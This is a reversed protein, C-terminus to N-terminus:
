AQMSRPSLKSMLGARSPAFGVLAFIMALKVLLQSGFRGQRLRVVLRVAIWIILLLLLAAVVVNLILLRGYTEEYQARNNTSVTLLFLLAIGILVMGVAGLGLIWRTTRSKPVVQILSTLFTGRSV